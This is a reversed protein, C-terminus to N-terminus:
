QGKDFVAVVGMAIVHKATNFQFATSLTNAAYDRDAVADMSFLKWEPSVEVTKNAFSPYPKSNLQLRLSIKASTVGPEAEALKAYFMVELKDGSKVRKTLPVNMGVAYPKGQGDTPILMARGGQVAKDKVVKVPSPTGYPQFASPDPNNVMQQKAAADDDQAAAPAAVTLLAGGLAAALLIRLTM